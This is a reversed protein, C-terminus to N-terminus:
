GHGFERALPGIMWRSGVSEWADLCSRVRPRGDIELLMGNLDYRVDQQAM